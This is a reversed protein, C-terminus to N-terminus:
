TVSKGSRSRKSFAALGVLSLIVLILGMLLSNLRVTGSDALWGASAALWVGLAFVGRNLLKPEIRIFGMVGIAIALAGVLLVNLDSDGRGFDIALPTLLLWIGVLVVFAWTGALTEAPAAREDRPDLAGGQPVDDPAQVVDPSGHTPAQEEVYHTHGRNGSTLAPVRAVLCGYAAAILRSAVKGSVPPHM